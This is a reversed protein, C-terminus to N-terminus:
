GKTPVGSRTGATVRAPVAPRDAGLVLRLDTGQRDGKAEVLAVGNGVRDKLSGAAGAFGPRYEIYTRRVTFPTFNTVRSVAVGQSRLQEVVRSAYRSIGNGNSVEIRPARAAQQGAAPEPKPGAGPNGASVGALSLSGDGAATRAPVEVLRIVPQRETGAPVPVAAPGSPLTEAAAVAPRPAEDVAPVLSRRAALAALEPMGAKRAAAQLNVWAREYGPDLTVAQRLADIAESHRGQLHLTYGINNYLYARQPSLEAVRRYTAAARETEGRKAYMKGLANLADVSKPDTALSKEYFAEAAALDGQEEKFRGLQYYAAGNAMGHRIDMLPKAEWAPKNKPGTVCGTLALVMMTALIKPKMARGGSKSLM